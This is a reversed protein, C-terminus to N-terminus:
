WCCPMLPKVLPMTGPLWLMKRRLPHAITTIYNPCRLSVSHPKRSQNYYILMLCDIHRIPFCRATNTVLDKM